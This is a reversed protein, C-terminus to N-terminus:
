ELFVKLCFTGFLARFYLRFASMGGPCGIISRVDFQNLIAATHTFLDILTGPFFITGGWVSLMSLQHLSLMDIFHPRCEPERRLADTPWTISETQLFSYLQSAPFNAPVPFCLFILSRTFKKPKYRFFAPDNSCHCDDFFNTSSSCRMYAM